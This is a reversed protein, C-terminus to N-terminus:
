YVREVIPQFIQALRVIYPSAGGFLFHNGCSKTVRMFNVINFPDHQERKESYFSNLLGNVGM